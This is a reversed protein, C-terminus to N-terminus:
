ENNDAENDSDTDSSFDRVMCTTPEDGADDSDDFLRENHPQKTVQVSDEVVLLDVHEALGMWSKKNSEEPEDPEDEADDDDEEQLPADHLGLTCVRCCPGHETFKCVQPELQMVRGCYPQPCMMYVRDHYYVINGTLHIMQLETVACQEVTLGAKRSACM